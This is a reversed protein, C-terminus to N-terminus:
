SFWKRERALNGNLIEIAIKANEVVQFDFMGVCIFDAGGEFAYRFGDQPKLAGAALVKFAFWPKDIANMVSITQDPFLDFINDHFQNHDESYAGDVSFEKRDAMPQVSWYKDRHFTKVYFDPNIGAKECAIPVQISHGGVGAPYGQSKIFEVVEAILDMKGERVMRDGVAGMIYIADAGNSMALKVNTFLDKDEPYSQCISYMKSNYEKKYKNLLPYYHHTMFTTNIGAQESLNLTEFVKQQTNYAKFLPSVYILDRSHSWGGILNCGMILRSMQMEGLKGKPIEGKLDKLAMANVKITAGSFSDVSQDKINSLATYAFTGLIPITGFMKLLERRKNTSNEAPIEETIPATREIIKVPRYHSWIRQAGFIKGTPYFALAILTVLEILNKSVIFYSGEAHLNNIGAGFPPNALYYLLLLAAAGISAWRDFIGLILAAGAILLGWMNLTDTFQLLGPSSALYHFFGSFVGKSGILFAEATWGPSLIKTLGEYCFHWGIIIRLLVLLGVLRNSKSINLSTSNM